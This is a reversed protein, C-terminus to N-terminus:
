KNNIKNNNKVIGETNGGLYSGTAANVMATVVKATTRQTKIGNM